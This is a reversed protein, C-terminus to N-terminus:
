ETWPHNALLIERDLLGESAKVMEIAEMENVIIDRDFTFAVWDDQIESLGRRRGDEMWFGALQHLARQVHRELGNVDMDLAAYEYKLAVGSAVATGGAAAQMRGSRHDIGRGLAYIDRRLRDLQATVAGHDVPSNLTDVGGDGSVKVARYAALNRRFEGLDQGDYNKLVLVSNPQDELANAFDSAAKDYEDILSKLLCILPQEEDNYRLPVFPLRSWRGATLVGDRRQWFHPAYAAGDM